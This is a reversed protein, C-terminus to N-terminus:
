MKVLKKAQNLLRQYELTLKQFPELIPNDKYESDATIELSQTIMKGERKFFVPEDQKAKGKSYPLDASESGPENNGLPSNTPKNNKREM